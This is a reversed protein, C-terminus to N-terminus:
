ADVAGVPLELAVCDCLALGLNQLRLTKYVEGHSVKLWIDPWFSVFGDVKRGELM